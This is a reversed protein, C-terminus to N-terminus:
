KRSAQDNEQYEPSQDAHEVFSASILLQETQADCSHHGGVGCVIPYEGYYLDTDQKLLQLVMQKVAKRESRSPLLNSVYRDYINLSGVPLSVKKKIESNEYVVLETSAGGIDILLGDTVDVAHSAGIFDLEAETEGSLVEICIGTREVIEEVAAHSNVANRLAATAFVHYDTIGLDQLISRFESLVECARNVGEPLMQGNKVYSALGVAEKKGMVLSLQGQEIKYINMRVTNSGVDIIAYM